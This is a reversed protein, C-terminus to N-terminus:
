QKMREHYYSPFSRCPADGRHYIKAIAFPHKQADMADRFLSYDCDEELFAIDGTANQYSYSSVKDAIGLIDLVYRPCELWGHGPDQHFLYHIQPTM